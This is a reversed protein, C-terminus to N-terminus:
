STPDGGPTGSASGLIHTHTSATPLNGEHEQSMGGRHGDHEVGDLCRRSLLDGVDHFATATFILGGFVQELDGEVM